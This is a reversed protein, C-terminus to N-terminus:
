LFASVVFTGVEIKVALLCNIRHNAFFNVVWSRYDLSDYAKNGVCRHTFISICSGSYFKFNYNNRMVVTMVTKVM